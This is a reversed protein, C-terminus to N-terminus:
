KVYDSNSIIFSFRLEDANNEGDVYGVAGSSTSSHMRGMSHQHTYQHLLFQALDIKQNAYCQFQEVWSAEVADVSNSGDHLGGAYKVNMVKNLEACDTSINRVVEAHPFNLNLYRAGNDAVTVSTSPSTTTMVKVIDSGEAGLVVFSPELKHVATLMRSALHYNTQNQVFLRLAKSAHVRSSALAAKDARRGLLEKQKRLLRECFYNRRQAYVFQRQMEEAYSPVADVFLNYGAGKYVSVLHEIRRVCRERQHEYDAITFYANEEASRNRYKKNYRKNYTQNNNNNNGTAAGATAGGGSSAADIVPVHILTISDSPKAIRCIMQLAFVFFFCCILIPNVFYHLVMRRHVVFSAHIKSNRDM